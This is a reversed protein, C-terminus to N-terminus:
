HTMMIELFISSSKQRHLFQHVTLLANEVRSERNDSQDFLPHNKAVAGLYQQCLNVCETLLDGRDVKALMLQTLLNNIRDSMVLLILKKEKWQSSRDSYLYSKVIISQMQSIKSLEDVYCKAATFYRENNFNAFADIIQKFLGTWDNPRSVFTQVDDQNLVYIKETSFDLIPAGNKSLTALM